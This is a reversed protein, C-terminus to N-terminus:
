PAPTPQAPANPSTPAPYCRRFGGEPVLLLQGQRALELTYYRIKRESVGLREALERRLCGPRVNVADVIRAPVSAQTPPPLGCPGAMPFLCAQGDLVVRRLRRHQELMRLHHRFVGMSLELRVRAAESAIGPEAEVLRLLRGRRPHDLLDSKTLRAFFALAGLYKWRRPRAFFLLAALLISLPAASLSPWSPLRHGVVQGLVSWANPRDPSDPPVVDENGDERGADQAAGPRASYDSPVPTGHYFASVYLHFPQDPALYPNPEGQPADVFVAWPFSAARREEGIPDIVLRGPSTGEWHLLRGDPGLAEMDVQLKSPGDRYTLADPPLTWEIEFVLATLNPGFNFRGINPCFRSESECYFNDGARERGFPVLTSTDVTPAYGVPLVRGDFQQVTPRAAAAQDMALTAVCLGLTLWILPGRVRTRAWGDLMPDM